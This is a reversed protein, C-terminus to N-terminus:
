RRHQMTCYAIALLVIISLLSLYKGAQVSAESYIAYYEEIAETDFDLEWHRRIVEMRIKSAGM